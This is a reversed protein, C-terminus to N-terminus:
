YQSQNCLGDEQYIENSSRLQENFDKGQSLIVGVDYGKFQLKKAMREAAQQGAEDNDLCLRVSQLHSYDSLSRFLAKDSVSCLSVYSHQQWGNPNLTIYSLMDIPAEFVFLEGSNGVWSFSYEVQSGTQNARFSSDKSSTSKKHAHRPKGNKDVGVFVANHYKNDEYLLGKHAFQNLVQPAIGRQKILYAYTRRMNDNRPPLEFPQQERPRYTDYTTTPATGSTGLLMEVAEPYKADFFRRVFDVATGGIQNYHDYFRNGRITIHGRWMYESGSKQLEESQAQLFAVLDTQKAAQKQEETFHIYKSM